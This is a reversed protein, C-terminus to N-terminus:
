TAADLSGTLLFDERIILAFLGYDLVVTNTVSLHVRGLGYLSAKSSIFYDSPYSVSSSFFWLSDRETSTYARHRPEARSFNGLVSPM